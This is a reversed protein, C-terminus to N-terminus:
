NTPRGACGQGTFVHWHTVRKDCVACTHSRRKDARMADRAQQACPKCTAYNATGDLACCSHIKDGCTRCTYRRKDTHRRPQKCCQCDTTTPKLTM